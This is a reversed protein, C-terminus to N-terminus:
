NEIKRKRAKKKKRTKFKYLKMKKRHSITPMLVKKIFVTITGKVSDNNWLQRYMLQFNVAHAPGTQLFSPVLRERSKHQCCHCTVLPLIDHIRLDYKDVRVFKFKKPIFCFCFYFWVPLDSVFFFLLPNVAISFILVFQLSPVTFYGGHNVISQINELCNYIKLSKWCLCRTSTVLNRMKCCYLSWWLSWTM